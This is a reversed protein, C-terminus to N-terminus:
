LFDRFSFAFLPFHLANKKQARVMLSSLIKNNLGEWHSLAHAFRDRPAVSVHEAGGVHNGILQPPNFEDRTRGTYNVGNLTRVSCLCMGGVEAEDVFATRNNGRVNGIVNEGVRNTRTRTNVNEKCPIVEANYSGVGTRQGGVFNKKFGNAIFGEQLLAITQIMHSFIPPVSRIGDAEDIDALHQDPTESTIILDDIYIFVQARLHEKFNDMIRQFTAPAGKLGMPM